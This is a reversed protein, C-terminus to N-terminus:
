QCNRFFVISFLTEDYIRRTSGFCSIGMLSPKDDSVLMDNDSDSIKVTLEMGRIGTVERSTDMDFALDPKFYEIVDRARDVITRKWVM